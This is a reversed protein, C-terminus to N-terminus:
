AEFCRFLFKRLSDNHRLIYYYEESLQAIKEEGHQKVPFKNLTTIIHFIEHFLTRALYQNSLGKRIVLENAKTDFYGYHDIKKFSVKITKNKYKIKTIKM